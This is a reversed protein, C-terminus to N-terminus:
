IKSCSPLIREDCNLNKRYESPSVGCTSKFIKMFHKENEYGVAQSIENIRMDTEELLRKAERMRINRLYNVFNSGTYQKFSYSFLSYNMSLYNSVVAMNLDGAYNQEIYEVAQKMKQKNKNVDFQGLISEQVVCLHTMVKEEYFALSDEAFIDEKGMTDDLLEALVNRYIKEEEALFDNMCEEFQKEDIRGNRVEYFFQHWIKEMEARRETGLIQVRQMKAEPSVLKAAEQLLKEPIHEETRGFQMVNQERCFARKRMQCAELYATRLERVGHHAASVGVFGQALEHELLDPLQVEEVIFFDNGEINELYIYEDQRIERQLKGNQCCVVYNKGTLTWVFEKAYQAELVALEEESTGPILMLHKIQRCGLKQKAIEQESANEVEENLKKLIDVLKQREVPKLIYERVGNRMMGVAYSFDDYGSIAVTLPVHECEQMKEVLEIGNMKPMRIDTFMVDIKQERIIELAAEGNNCELIVEVPVGSRQIMTKIGQRILKEDEVVLVTKM